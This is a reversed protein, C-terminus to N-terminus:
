ETHFFNLFAQLLCPCAVIQETANLTNSMSPVEDSSGANFHPGDIRAHFEFKWDPGKSAHKTIWTEPKTIWTCKKALRPWFCGTHGCPPSPCLIGLGSWSTTRLHYSHRQPCGPGIHWHCVQLCVTPSLVPSVWFPQASDAACGAIGLLPQGFERTPLEQHAM